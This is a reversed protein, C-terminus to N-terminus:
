IPFTGQLLFHCGMGTNKGPFDISLPAQHAICDMPNCLSPCSQVVSRAHQTCYLQLLCEHFSLRWSDGLQATEFSTQLGFAAWSWLWECHAKNSKCLPKNDNDRNIALILIIGTNWMIMWTEPKKQPFFFNFVQRYQSFIKRPLVKSHTLQLQGKLQFKHNVTQSQTKM